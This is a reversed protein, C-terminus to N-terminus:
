IHNPYCIHCIAILIHIHAVIGCNYFYLECQRANTARILYRANKKKAFTNKNKQKCVSLISKKKM